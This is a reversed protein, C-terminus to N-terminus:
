GLKVSEVDVTRFVGKPVDDRWYNARLTGHQAIEHHASWKGIISADETVIVIRHEGTAANQEYVIRNPAKKTAM